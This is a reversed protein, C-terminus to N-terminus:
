QRKRMEALFVLQFYLCALGGVICDRSPYDIHNYANEFLEKQANSISKWYEPIYAQTKVLFDIEDSFRYWEGHIHHREFKKHFQREVRTDGDVVGLLELEAPTATQINPFRHLLNKTYGIKVANMERVYIFYVVDGTIAQNRNHKRRMAEKAKVSKCTKCMNRFGLRDSSKYFYEATEPFFQGCRSCRKHIVGNIRKRDAAFRSDLSKIM